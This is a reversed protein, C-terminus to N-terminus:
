DESDLSSDGVVEKTFLDESELIASHDLFGSVSGNDVPDDEPVMEYIYYGMLNETIKCDPLGKAQFSEVFDARLKNKSEITLGKVPGPLKDAWDLNEDGDRMYITVGHLQKAAELVKAADCADIAVSKLQTLMKAFAVARAGLIGRKAMAVDFDSIEDKNQRWDKLVGIQYDIARQTTVSSYLSSIPQGRIAEISESSALALVVRCKTDFQGNYIEKPAQYARPLRKKLTEQDKFDLDHLDLYTIDYLFPLARDIAGRDGSRLAECLQEGAEVGCLPHTFVDALDLPNESVDMLGLEGVVKQKEIGEPIAALVRKADESSATAPLTLELEKLGPNNNLVAILAEVDWEDDSFSAVLTELKALKGAFIMVHEGLVGKRKVGVNFSTVKDLNQMEFQLACLGFLTQFDLADDGGEVPTVVKEGNLIQLVQDDSISIGTDVVEYRETLEIQWQVAPDIKVCKVNEAKKLLKRAVGQELKSIDLNRFEEVFALEQRVRLVDNKELAATLKRSKKAPHPTKRQLPLIDPVNSEQQPVSLSVGLLRNLAAGSALSTLPIVWQHQQYLKFGHSAYLQGLGLLIPAVVYKINITSYCPLTWASQHTDREIGEM